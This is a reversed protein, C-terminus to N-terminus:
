GGRARDKKFRRISTKTRACLLPEVEKGTYAGYGKFFTASRELEEGIRGAIEKNKPSIILVMNGKEEGYVIANIVKSQVFLTVIGFLGAEVNGFVAISTLLVVADVALM